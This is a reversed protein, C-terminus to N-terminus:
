PNHGRAPARGWIVGHQKVIAAAGEHKGSPRGLRHFTEVLRQRQIRVRRFDPVIAAIREPFQVASKLRDGAIVPGDREPGIIGLRKVIAAVGMPDIEFLDFRRQFIELVGKGDIRFAVIQAAIQQMQAHM